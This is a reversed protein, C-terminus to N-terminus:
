RRDIGSVSGGRYWDNVILLYLVPVKQVQVQVLEGRGGTQLKRSPTHPGLPSIDRSATHSSMPLIHLSSYDGIM